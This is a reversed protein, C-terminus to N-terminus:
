SSPNWPFSFEVRHPQTWVDQYELHRASVPPSVLLSLQYTGAGPLKVDNGYHPGMYRAIMPWQRQDYVVKGEKRITAWVSAYPIPVGTQQDSLMVMLHLSAGSPPVTRASTGNYVVFPVPTTLQAAIKMGEWDATGVPQIPIPKIVGAATAVKMTGGSMDMGAMSGSAATSASSGTSGSSAGMHMGGMDSSSMAGSSTTMTSSSAAQEKNAAACGSLLAVTGLALAARSAKRTIPSM